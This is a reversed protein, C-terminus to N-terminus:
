CVKPVYIIASLNIQGAVVVIVSKTDCHGSRYTFTLDLVLGLHPCSSLLDALGWKSDVGETLKFLKLIIILNFAYIGTGTGWVLMM